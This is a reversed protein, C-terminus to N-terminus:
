YHIFLFTSKIFIIVFYPPLIGVFSFLIATDKITRNKTIDSSIAFKSVLIFGWFVSFSKSDGDDVVKFDESSLNRCVILLGLFLILV